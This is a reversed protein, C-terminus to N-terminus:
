LSKMPFAPNLLHWGMPTLIRACQGNSLLVTAIREKASYGVFSTYGVTDGNKWTLKDGHAESIFWGAAVSIGPNGTPHLPVKLLEAFAPALRTGRRGTAAELFLLMDNASSYFSGAAQFARPFNWAAVPQLTSGHAPTLRAQMSPTVTIRTSDMGLPKCIREVVLDEYSAGARRALLVGLLGYGFNGYIFQSGLAHDLTLADLAAYLQTVPYDPFPKDLDLPPLNAPWGPLGSVYGAIDLLTIEKGDYSPSHVGAPLYKSIPDNMAVEGGVAMDALTLATFMKTVSAIQFVTDGDLSRSSGSSGHPVIRRGRPDLLGAIIGPTVRAVDVQHELLAEVAPPAPTPSSRVASAVLTSFLFTRRDLM